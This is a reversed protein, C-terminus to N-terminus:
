SDIAPERASETIVEPDQVKTEHTDVGLHDFKRLTVLMRSEFSGLTKNYAECAANLSKGLRAFHSSVDGVRKYLEKGLNKIAEVQESLMEQKWGFAVAKLLALLTTPTAIIVQHRAGLEILTPDISLAASFLSEQPLFLIVFEISGELAEFYSKKSLAQIHDKIKSAHELLKKEKLLDDQVSQAELFAELPAKADIVLQRGGSLKVIVDPRLKDSKLVQQEYFDCYPLLGSIELVRKLQVEGWMGRAVPNKLASALARTEEKLLLESDKLARLQTKLGEHDGKREKELTHLSTSLKDLTEKVPSIVSMLLAQKDSATKIFHDTNKELAEQSLLKFTKEMETLAQKETELGKVQLSLDFILKDKKIGQSREYIFLALAVLALSVLLLTMM